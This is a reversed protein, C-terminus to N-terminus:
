EALMYDPLDDTLLYPALVVHSPAVQQIQM